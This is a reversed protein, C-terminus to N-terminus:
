PARPAYASRLGIVLGLFAEPSKPSSRPSWPRLGNVSVRTIVAREPRGPAVGPAVKPLGILLEKTAQNDELASPFSSM